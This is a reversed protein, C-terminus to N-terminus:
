FNINIGWAVSRASFYNNRREIGPSLVDSADNTEGNDQAGTDVLNPEPDTGTYKTIVFLNSGILSLQVSQISSNELKFRKSITLNDLKFFDAKEVYLSSFRATTL